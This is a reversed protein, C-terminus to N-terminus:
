NLELQLLANILPEQRRAQLCALGLEYAEIDDVTIKSVSTAMSSHDLVVQPVFGVGCELAVMSVIAENGGVSAYVNPRIGHEAFWHYVIRRTPGHEPMVVQHKRWDIQGLQNLRWERPAILVLPVRDLTSFSLDTPLDPSHIAIAADCQKQKVYDIALAPDGTVLRIDVGPYRQRFRRLVAPLHSQSATVSCFLSIEGQLTANDNRLEAQLAQWDKLVHTSFSLLKHGAHTLAVKRNDRKFLISGCEEELRQIVRSLTSPSVYMAEATDGFHLSTALHSFLQLSRFDM